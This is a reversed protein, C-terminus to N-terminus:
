RSPPPVPIESVIAVSASTGIRDAGAERMAQADALTRIGGAAKIRVHDPCARRMLQVDEVRARAYVGTSTKVFDAGAHAALACAQVIEEPTLLPAEIIVKLVATRGIRERAAAIEDAYCQFDSSRLLDHRAVLDIETAGDAICQEAEAVKIPTRHGGSPFGVVSCVAGLAGIRGAALRVHVPLVCVATFGFELCEDCLRRIEEPTSTPSLLTHDILSAIGTPTPIAVEPVESPPTPTASREIRVGRALATDVASPTIIANNAVILVDRASEVDAATVVQRKAERM